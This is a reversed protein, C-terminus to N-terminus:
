ENAIVLKYGRGRVTLLHRPRSPEAEIKQRLRRIHVMLTNEYGYYEGGWAALCLADFTVIKNRNDYLKKLLIYEKATLPIEKGNKQVSATEFSVTAGPLRFSSNIESISYVRKLVANIRLVLEDALFPKVIYDDAGLGLGRIRDNGEGCATLFIAPASSIERLREFLTFGDGDPLNVDLLYLAIPQEGAIRLATECNSATFIHYFGNRFLIESLMKLLENEDDVILIKKNKLENM